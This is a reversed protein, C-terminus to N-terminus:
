IKYFPHQLVLVPDYKKAFASNEWINLNIVSVSVHHELYRFCDSLTGQVDEMLVCSQARLSLPPLHILHILTFTHHRRMQCISQSRHYVSACVPEWVINLWYQCGVPLRERGGGCVCESVCKKIGLGGFSHSPPIFNCSWGSERMGCSYDRDSSPCVWICKVFAPVQQALM